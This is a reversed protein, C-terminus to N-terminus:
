SLDLTLVARLATALKTPFCETSCNGGGRLHGRQMQGAPFAVDFHTFCQDHEIAPLHKNEWCMGGRTRCTTSSSSCFPASMVLVSVIDLLARSRAMSFPWSHTCKITTKMAFTYTTATEGPTRERSGDAAMLKVSLSTRVATNHGCLIGHINLM